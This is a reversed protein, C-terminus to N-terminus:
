IDTYDYYYGEIIAYGLIVGGLEMKVYNKKCLMCINIYVGIPTCQFSSKNEM